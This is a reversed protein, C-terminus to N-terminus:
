MLINLSIHCYWSQNTYHIRLNNSVANFDRFHKNHWFSNSKTGKCLTYQKQQNKNLSFSSLRPDGGRAWIVAVEKSPPWFDNALSFESTLYSPSEGSFPSLYKVRDPGYWPDQTSWVEKKKEKITNEGLGESLKVSGWLRWGGWSRGARSEERGCRM